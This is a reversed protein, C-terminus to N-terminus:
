WKPWCLISRHRGKKSFHGPNLITPGPCFTRTM